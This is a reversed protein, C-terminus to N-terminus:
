EYYYDDDSNDQSDASLDKLSLAQPERPEILITSTATYQRPLLRLVVTAAILASCVVGAILKRHRRLVRYYQNFERADIDLPALRILSERERALPAPRHPLPLTQGPM